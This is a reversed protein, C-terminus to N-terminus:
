AVKQKKNEDYLKTYHISYSTIVPKGADGGDCISEVIPIQGLLDTGTEAALRSGGDRGFLYFKKGPLEPSEFYSM